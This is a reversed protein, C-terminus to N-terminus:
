GKIYVTGCMANGYTMFAFTATGLGLDSPLGMWQTQMLKRSLKENQSCLAWRRSNRKKLHWLATLGAHTSDVPGPIRVLHEAYGVGDSASLGWVASNQEINVVPLHETEIHDPRLDEFEHLSAVVFAADRGLDALRILHVLFGNACVHAFEDFNELFMVNDLEIM